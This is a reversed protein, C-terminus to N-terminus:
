LGTLPVTRAEYAVGDRAFRADHFVQSLRRPGGDLPDQACGHLGLPPLNKKLACVLSVAFQLLVRLGPGIALRLQLKPVACHPVTQSSWGGALPIYNIAEGM